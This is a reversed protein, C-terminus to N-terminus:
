YLLVVAKAKGEAEWGGHSGADGDVDPSDKTFDAGGYPLDLSIDCSGVLLFLSRLRKYINCV